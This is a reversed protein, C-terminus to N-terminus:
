VQSYFLDVAYEVGLALGEYFGQAEGVIRARFRVAKVVFKDCALARDVSQEFFVRKVTRLM